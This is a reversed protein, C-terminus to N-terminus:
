PNLENPDQSDSITATNLHQQGYRKRALAFKESDISVRLDCIAQLQNRLINLARLLSLTDRESFHDGEDLLYQMTYAVTDITPRLQDITTFEGIKETLTKNLNDITAM